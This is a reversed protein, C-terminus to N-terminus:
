VPVGDVDDPDLVGDIVERDYAECIRDSQMGLAHLIKDVLHLLSM